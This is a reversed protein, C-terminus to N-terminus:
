RCPAVGATLLGYGWLVHNFMYYVTQAPGTDHTWADYGSCNVLALAGELATVDAEAIGLKGGKPARWGPPQWVTYVGTVHSNRLEVALGQQTFPRYTFYWTTTSCGRCVGH